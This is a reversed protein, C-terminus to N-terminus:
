TIGSPYLPQPMVNVVWGWRAGLNVFSYLYVETKRQAKMAQELNFKVMMNVEVM